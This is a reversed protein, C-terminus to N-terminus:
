KGCCDEDDRIGNLRRTESDAYGEPPFKKILRTTEAGSALLCRPSKLTGGAWAPLTGFVLQTEIRGNKSVQRILYDSSPDFDGTVSAKVAIMGLQDKISELTFATRRSAFLSAELKGNCDWLVITKSSM